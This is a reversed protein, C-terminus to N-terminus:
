TFLWFSRTSLNASFTQFCTPLSIYIFGSGGFGVFISSLRGLVDPLCRSVGSREQISCMFYKQVFM